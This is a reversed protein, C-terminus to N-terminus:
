LDKLFNDVDKRVQKIKWWIDNQSEKFLHYEPGVDEIPWGNESPSWDNSIWELDDDFM